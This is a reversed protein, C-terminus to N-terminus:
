FFGIASGQSYRAWQGAGVLIKRAQDYPSHDPLGLTLATNLHNAAIRFGARDEFPNSQLRDITSIVIALGLWFEHRALKAAFAKRDADDLRPRLASSLLQGPTLGLETCLPRVMTEVRELVTRAQEAWKDGRRQATEAAEIGVDLAQEALPVNDADIEVWMQAEDLARELHGERTSRRIQAGAERALRTRARTLEDAAFPATRILELHARARPLQDRRLELVRTVHPELLQGPLEARARDVILTTEEPTGDATVALTRTRLEDWFDDAAHLRSWLALAERWAEFAEADGVIELAYARAHAAVALHHLGRADATQGADCERWLRLASPTWPHIDGGTRLEAYALRELPREAARARRATAIEAIRAAAARLRGADEGELGALLRAARALARDADRPADFLEARAAQALDAGAVTIRLERLADDAGTSARGVDTGTSDTGVDTGGVDTGTAGILESVLEPAHHAVATLLTTPDLLTRTPWASGHRALLTRAGRTVLEVDADLTGLALQGNALLTEDASTTGLLRRLHERAGDRDDARLRDLAALLLATPLLRPEGARLVETLRDGPATGSMVAAASVVLNRYPSPTGPGKLKDGATIGRALRHYAGIDHLARIREAAQEGGGFRQALEYRRAAEDQEGREAALDGVLLFWDPRSAPGLAYLLLWVPSTPGTFQYHEFEKDLLGSLHGRAARRFEDSVAPGPTRVSNALWAALEADEALLGSVSFWTRAFEAPAPERLWAGFVEHAARPDVACRDAVECLLRVAADPATPAAEVLRALVGARDRTLEADDYRNLLAQVAALVARTRVAPDTEQEARAVETEFVSPGTPREDRRAGRAPEPTTERVPEVPREEGGRSWPWNM